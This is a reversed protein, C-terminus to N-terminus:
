NDGQSAHSVGKHKKRIQDVLKRLQGESLQLEDVTRLLVPIMPRDLMHSMDPPLVGEDRAAIFYTDWDRSGQELALADAVARLKAVSRWPSRMGSEVGSYNSPSEGIIEAFQRLGFGARLRFAKLVSKFDRSM